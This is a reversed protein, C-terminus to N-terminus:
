AGNNLLLYNLFFALSIDGSIMRLHFAFTINLTNIYRQLLVKSNSPLDPRYCMIFITILNLTPFLCLPQM